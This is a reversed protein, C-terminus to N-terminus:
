FYVGRLLERTTDVDEGYVWTDAQGTDGADVYEKRCTAHIVLLVVRVFHDVRCLRGTDLVLVREDGRRDGIVLVWAVDFVDASADNGRNRM